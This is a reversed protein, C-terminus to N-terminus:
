KKKVAKEASKIAKERPMGSAQMRAIMVDTFDKKGDDNHDDSEAEELEEELVERIIRRIESLKIKM